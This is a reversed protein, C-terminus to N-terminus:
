GGRGSRRGNEARVAAYGVLVGVSLLAVKVGVPVAEAQETIWVGAVLAAGGVKLALSIM